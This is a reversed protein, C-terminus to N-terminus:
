LTYLVVYVTATEAFTNWYLHWLQAVIVCLDAILFLTLVVIILRRRLSM